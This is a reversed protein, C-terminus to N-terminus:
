EGRALGTRVPGPTPAEEQSEFDTRLGAFPQAGVRQAPCKARPAAGCAGKGYRRVRLLLVGLPAFVPKKQFGRGCRAEEGVLTGTRACRIFRLCTQHQPHVDAERTHTAGLGLRDGLSRAVLLKYFWLGPSIHTNLLEQPKEFVFVGM